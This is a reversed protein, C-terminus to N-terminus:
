RVWRRNAPSATEHPAQPAASCSRLPSEEHGDPAMTTPVNLAGVDSVAAGDQEQQSARRDTGSRYDPLSSHWPQSGFFQQRRDTGSRRDPTRPDPAEVSAIENESLAKVGRPNTREDSTIQMAVGYLQPWRRELWAERIEDWWRSLPLRQARFCLHVCSVASPGAAVLAWIHRESMVEVHVYGGVVEDLVPEAYGDIEAYRVVVGGIDSM